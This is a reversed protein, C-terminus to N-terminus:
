RALVRVVLVTEDDAFPGAFGSAPRITTGRRVGFIAAPEDATFTSSDGVAIATAIGRGEAPFAQPLPATTTVAPVGADPHLFFFELRGARGDLRSVLEVEAETDFTLLEGDAVRREGEWVEYLFVLPGAEGRELRCGGALAFGPDAEPEAWAPLVRPEVTLAVPGAGCGGVLAALVVAGLLRGRATM